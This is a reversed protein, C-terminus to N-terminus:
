KKELRAIEADLPPMDAQLERVYTRGYAIESGPAQGVHQMYDLKGQAFQILEGLRKRYQKLLPLSM